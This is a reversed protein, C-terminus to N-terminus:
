IRGAQPRRQITFVPASYFYVLFGFIMDSLGWLPLSLSLSLAFSVGYFLCIAKTDISKSDEEKLSASSHEPLTELRILKGKQPV